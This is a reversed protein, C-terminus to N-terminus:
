KLLLDDITCGFYKAIDIVTQINPTIGKEWRKINEKSFNLDKCIKRGSIVQANKFKSFNVFFYNEQPYPIYKNELSMEFMYDISVYLYNAINKLTQISPNRQKYKYFTNKSVIKDEFMDKLTKNQEELLGKVADIINKM